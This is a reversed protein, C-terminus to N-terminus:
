HLRPLAANTEQPEHSSFSCFDTVGGSKWIATAGVGLRVEPSLSGNSANRPVPPSGNTTGALAFFRRPPRSYRRTMSDCFPAESKVRLTLLRVQTVPDLAPM